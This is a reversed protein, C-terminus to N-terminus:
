LFRALAAALASHGSVSLHLDSPYYHDRRGSSRFQEATSLLPVDLGAAISEIQRRPADLDFTLASLRPYQGFVVERFAEDGYPVPYPEILVLKLQSGRKSAESKLLKLSTALREYGVRLVPLYDPFYPWYEDNICRLDVAQRSQIRAVLAQLRQGLLLRAPDPSRLPDDCAATSLRFSNFDPLAENRLDNGIFIVYVLVKPRLEWLGPFPSGNALGEPFPLEPNLNKAAYIPSWGSWGCAMVHQDAFRPQQQLLRYFTRELPVQLSEVFSDGLFLTQPLSTDSSYQSQDHCAMNNWPVKVLFEPRRGVQGPWRFETNPKHWNKRAFQQVYRSRLVGLLEPKLGELEDSALNSVLVPRNSWEWCRLGIEAFAISIAASFAVIAAKFLYSLM